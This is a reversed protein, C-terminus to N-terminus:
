SPHLSLLARRWRHSLKTENSSETNKATQACACEKARYLEALVGQNSFNLATVAQLRPLFIRLCSSPSVKAREFGFARGLFV